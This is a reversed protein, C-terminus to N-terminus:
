NQRYHNKIAPIFAPLLIFVGNLATVYQIPAIIGIFYAEVALWLMLVIGLIVTGAWSWHYPAFRVLNQLLSIKPKAILGFTLFLPALTMVLLLFIGPLIYNPVPLLALEREMGISAGSPDSLFNYAGVAGGLALFLLFFILIWLTFPRKM